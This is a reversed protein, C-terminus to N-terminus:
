VTGCFVRGRSTKYGALGSERGPRPYVFEQDVMDGILNLAGQILNLHHYLLRANADNAMRVQKIRKKLTNSRTDLLVADHGALHRVLGSVTVVAEDLGLERSLEGSIECRTMEMAKLEDVLSQKKEGVTLFQEHNSFSALKKEEALITQMAEYAEIEQDLVTLLRNFTTNM